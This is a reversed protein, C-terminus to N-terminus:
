NNLFCMNLFFNGMNKNCIKIIKSLSCLRDKIIFYLDIYDRYNGRRGLAYAKTALIEEVSLISLIGSVRILSYIPSWYYYLLTIKIQNDLVISLENSTDILTKAKNIIGFSYKKNYCKNGFIDSLKALIKHRKEDLIEIYVKKM